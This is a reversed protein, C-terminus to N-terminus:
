TGEHHGGATTDAPAREPVAVLHCRVNALATRPRLVPPDTWCSEEAIPCRPAYACGASPRHTVVPRDKRNAARRRRRPDPVPIVDLLSRTYPHHSNRFIEEAPGEEVVQGQFMVTVRDAIRQVLSLDHSIFITALGREEQIDMILNLVQAQISVDLAAVPEDCVLLDPEVGLARAIGVRQLQGGSFEHPYRDAQHAAIGVRDLLELVRAHRAQGTLGFHIQLPEGISDAVVMRPDLSSYPDQFILQMRKRLARLRGASLGRIDVGDFVIRGADPEVLRLVLRGVTSKGAGSEGVVAVTERTSVSLDVDRVAHHLTAGRGFFSGGTPYAKSLGTAQLIPGSSV